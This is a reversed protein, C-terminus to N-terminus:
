RSLSRSRPRTGVVAVSSGYVLLHDTKPQRYSILIRSGNVGRITVPHGDGAALDGYPV